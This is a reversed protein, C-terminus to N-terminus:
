SSGVYLLAVTLGTLGSDGSSAFFAAIAAVVCGFVVMFSCSSSDFEISISSRKKARAGVTLERDGCSEGAGKDGGAVIEKGCSKEGKDGNGVEPQVRLLLQLAFM